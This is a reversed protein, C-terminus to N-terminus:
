IEFCDNGLPSNLVLAFLALRRFKKLYETIFLKLTRVVVVGKHGGSFNTLERLFIKFGAGSVDETWISAASKRDRPHQHIPTVFVEPM